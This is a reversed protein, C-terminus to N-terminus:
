AGAARVRRLLRAHHALPRADGPFAWAVDAIVGDKTIAFSYRKPQGSHEDFIGFARAADGHPWFDSLGLVRESAGHADLWSALTATSDCSAIALQVGAEEARPVLELLEDLESGCVPTYAAPVFVLLMPQDMSGIEVRPGRHSDLQVAPCRDGKALPNEPQTGAELSTM